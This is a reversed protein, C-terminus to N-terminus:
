KNVSKITRNGIDPLVFNNGEFESPKTGAGLNIINIYAEKEVEIHSQKPIVFAMLKIITDIREKPELKDLLEKINELEDNVIEKSLVITKATSRNVAGKPRGNINRTGKFGTKM